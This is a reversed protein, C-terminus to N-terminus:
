AGAPCDRTSATESDLNLRSEDEHARFLNVHHRCQLVNTDDVTPLYRGEAGQPSRELRFFDLQDVCGSPISTGPNSSSHHEGTVGATMQEDLM